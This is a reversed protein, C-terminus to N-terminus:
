IMLDFLKLVGLESTGVAGSAEVAPNTAWTHKYEAVWQETTRNFHINTKKFGLYSMDGEKGTNVLTFTNSLRSDQCLGRLRVIPQSTRECVVCAKTKCRM